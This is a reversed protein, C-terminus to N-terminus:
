NEKILEKKYVSYFMTEFGDTDFQEMYKFEEDLESLLESEEEPSLEAEEKINMMIKEKITHYLAKKCKCIDYETKDHRVVLWVFEKEM